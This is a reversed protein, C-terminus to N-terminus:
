GAASAYIGFTMDPRRRTRLGGRLAQLSEAEHHLAHETTDTRHQTLEFTGLGLAWLAVATAMVWLWIPM